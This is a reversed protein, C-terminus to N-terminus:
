VPFKFALDITSFESLLKILAFIFYESTIRIKDTTNYVRM